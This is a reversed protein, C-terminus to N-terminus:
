SSVPVQSNADHCTLRKFQAETSYREDVVEDRIRLYEYITSFGNCQLVKIRLLQQYRQAKMNKLM